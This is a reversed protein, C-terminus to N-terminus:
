RTTSRRNAASVRYEGPELVYVRGQSDVDVLAPRAQYFTASGTEDGGFVLTTDLMWQLVTPVGSNTVIAVGASDAVSTDVRDPSACSAVTAPAITAAPLSAWRAVRVRCNSRSPALGTGSVRIEM